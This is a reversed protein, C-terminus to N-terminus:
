TMGKARREKCWQEYEAAFKPNKFAEKVSRALVRCLSDSEHKPMVNFDIHVSAPAMSAIETKTKKM